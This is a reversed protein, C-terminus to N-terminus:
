QAKKDKGRQVEQKRIRELLAPRNNMIENRDSTTIGKMQKPVPFNKGCNLCGLEYTRAEWDLTEEDADVVAKGDILYLPANTPVNQILVFSYQRLEIGEKPDCPSSHGCHPCKVEKPM